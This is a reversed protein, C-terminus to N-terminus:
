AGIISKLVAVIVPALMALAYGLCAARFATKAKEIESPDGGGLLYRAGAITLFLTALGALIGVLWNRANDIVEGLSSAIALVDTNPPTASASGTILVLLVMSTAAVALVRLWHRARRASRPTTQDLHGQNTNM